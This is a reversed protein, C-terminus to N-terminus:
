SVSLWLSLDSNGPNRKETLAGCLIQSKHNQFYPNLSFLVNLKKGTSIISYVRNPNQQTDLCLLLMRLIETLINRLLPQISSRAIDDIASYSGLM